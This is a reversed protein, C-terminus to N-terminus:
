FNTMDFLRVAIFIGNQDTLIEFDVNGILSTGHRPLTFIDYPKNPNKLFEIYHYNLEDVKGYYQYNVINLESISSTIISKNDEKSTFLLRAYERNFWKITHIELQM